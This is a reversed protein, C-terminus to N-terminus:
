LTWLYCLVVGFVSLPIVFKRFLNIMSDLRARPTVVDILIFSIFVVYSLAVSVLADNFGFFLDVFVSCIVFAEM